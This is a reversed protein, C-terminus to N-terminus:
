RQTSDLCLGDKVESTTAGFLSREDHDSWTPDDLWQPEPNFSSRFKTLEPAGTNRTNPVDDTSFVYVAPGTGDANTGPVWQFSGEEEPDRPGDM